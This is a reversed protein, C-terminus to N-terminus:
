WTDDERNEGTSSVAPVRFSVLRVLLMDPFYTHLAELVAPVSVQKMLRSTMVPAYILSVRSYKSLLGHEHTLIM